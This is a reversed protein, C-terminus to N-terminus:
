SVNIMYRYGVFLDSLVFDAIVGFDFLLQTTTQFSGKGGGVSLIFGVPSAVRVESRIRIMSDVNVVDGVSLRVELHNRQQLQRLSQYVQCRRNGVFVVRTVM